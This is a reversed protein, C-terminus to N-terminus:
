RMVELTEGEDYATCRWYHGAGSTTKFGMISIFLNFEETPVETEFQKSTRKFTTGSKIYKTMKVKM